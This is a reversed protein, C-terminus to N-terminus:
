LNEFNSFQQYVNAIQTQGPATIAWINRIPATAFGGFEFSAGGSLPTGLGTNLAAANGTANIGVWIVHNATPAYNVVRAKFLPSLLGSHNSYLWTGTPVVVTGSSFPIRNAFLNANYGSPSEAVSGYQGRDMSYQVLPGHGIFAKTSTPVASSSTYAIAMFNLVCFLLGRFVPAEM